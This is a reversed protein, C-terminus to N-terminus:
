PTIYGKQASLATLCWGVLWGKGHKAYSMLHTFLDLMLDHTYKLVFPSINTYCLCQKKSSSFPATVSRIQM